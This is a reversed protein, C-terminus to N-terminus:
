AQPRRALMLLSVGAPLPLRGVLHRESAFVAGLLRNLLPSPMAEDDGGAIGFLGKLMRVGAILPFLLSNFYTLRVPVVGAEHARALLQDKLYRRKHHHTEDHRSWLFPFAPVTLLMWGGPRLRQGLARLSALDEDVHELVDFACILDFSGAEFPIEGPLRGDRVEFAGKAVAHRRAEEDPEFASVEGFDALMALNGGTGCGAELVRPRDPLRAYRRLTERLIRRRALFWWHGNELEAM